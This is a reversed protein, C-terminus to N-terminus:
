TAPPTQDVTAPQAGQVELAGADRLIGEAESRRAADLVRVSLLLQGKAAKADRDQQEQDDLHRTVAYTAGGAAAGAGLAAGFAPAAAGGTAITIGAAALAAVSAAGSTHLTRATEADSEDDPPKAGSEPTSRRLPPNAEPLSLDARAFGALELRQMADAMKESSDFSGCIEHRESFTPGANPSDSM